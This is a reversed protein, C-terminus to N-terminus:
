AQAVAFSAMTEGDSSSIQLDIRHRECLRRVIALGLGFGASAEGKAFPEFLRQQLEPGIAPGSNRICVRGDQLDIRVRGRDGHAFANGILNALLMHLVPQPLHMRASRPLEVEVRLSKNELLPAQELVVREVLPLLALPETTAAEASQERALALLTSVTQELQWASQRVHELQRRAAESLGPEARLREGAARIVALPTRLEHSTDRTFSQEREIFDRTRAILQDLGRAVVGVEDDPFGSAIAQPLRAPEMGGVLAALRALPATTRRALLWAILLALGLLMAGAGLLLRLMAERMPRVVLQQSVEAVLWVQGQGQGRGPAPEITRLHYHRGQAGSFERRRPENQLTQRFEAPLADADPYLRMYDSRPQPWTGSAAHQRQLSAAEQELATEFFRDEVAYVFAAALVTFLAAVLVTYAAFALMLRRRLKM